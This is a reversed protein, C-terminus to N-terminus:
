QSPRCMFPGLELIADVSLGIKKAIIGIQMMKAGRYFSSGPTYDLTLM